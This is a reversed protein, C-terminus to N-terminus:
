TRCNTPAVPIPHRRAPACADFRQDAPSRSGEARAPGRYGCDIDVGGHDALNAGVGPLDVRVPIGVSRLHEAPEIGSRMLIPATGYTGASVVVWGAEIVAGNMLRVGRAGTAEFVVDAVHADPRITLNPPAHGLPLFADATAAWEDYDATSGRLAFRTM